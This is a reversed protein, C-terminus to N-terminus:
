IRSAPVAACGLCYGLYQLVNVAFLGLDFAYIAEAVVGGPGETM